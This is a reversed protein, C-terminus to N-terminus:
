NAKLSTIREALHALNVAKDFTGAVGPSAILNTAWTHFYAYKPDTSLKTLVDKSGIDSELVLYIRSVFPAVLLEALTPVESGDFFPKANVLYPVFKDIADFIDNLASVDGGYISKRYVPFLFESFRDSLLRSQALKFPDKPLLKAEPVLDAVFETTIASEILYEDGYKLTPVKGGPNVEKLFWDPKNKLDIEIYEFEVNAQTLAIWTRAAWPCIICCYLKIPKPPIIKALSM